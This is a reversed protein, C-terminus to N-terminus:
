INNKILQEKKPLKSSSIENFFLETNENMKGDYLSNIEL